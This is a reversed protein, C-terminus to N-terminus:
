IGKLSNTKWEEYKQQDAYLELRWGRQAGIGVFADWISGVDIFWSNPIKGHLKQVMLAAPLGASFLYVGPKGYDLCEQVVRDVEPHCNPYSIEVFKDYNLFDLGRLAKNSVVVVNMKRLQRIFPQLTCEKMRKDWMDKEVFEINLSRAHLWADIKGEGIGSWDARKLVSPSSFYFSPSFFSMSEILEDCLEETYVTDEANTKGVREKFLALWEGDGYMGMSFTEGKELKEVYWELSYDHIIM